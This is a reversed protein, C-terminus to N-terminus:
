KPSDRKGACRMRPRGRGPIDVGLELAHMSGDVDTFPHHYTQYIHGEPSHWEGTQPTQTRLVELSPVGQV